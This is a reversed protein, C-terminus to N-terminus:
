PEWGGSYGDQMTIARNGGLGSLNRFAGNDSQDDIQEITLKATFNEGPTWLFKAGYNLYDQKAVDKNLTVNRIYGDDQLSAGFLKVALM